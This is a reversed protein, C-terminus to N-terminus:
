ATKASTKRVVKESGVIVTAKMRYTKGSIVTAQKDLTQTGTGSKTWKQVKAWSGNEKKQLVMSVSIKKSTPCVARVHMSATNGSINFGTQINDIGEYTPTINESQKKDSEIINAADGKKVPMGLALVMAATLIMVYGKKRM